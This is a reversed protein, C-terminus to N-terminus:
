AIKIPCPPHHELGRLGDSLSEPRERLTVATSRQRAIKRSHAHAFHASTTCRANGKKQMFSEKREGLKDLSDRKYKEVRDNM